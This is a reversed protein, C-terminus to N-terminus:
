PSLHNLKFTRRLLFDKLALPLLQKLYRMKRNGYGIGIEAPPKRSAIQAILLAAFQGATTPSASSIKARGEVADALSRYRSQASFTDRLQEKANDGFASAVAGPYVTMVHIGFPLLEMRLVESLTHLASKSACYAGSFPTALVGAASGINVVVPRRSKLLLPLCHQCLALPAFTNTEFQARVQALPMEVLPGMAGYGANNILCDLYGSHRTITAVVDALQEADNVDLAVPLLNRSRCDQLSQPDRAGAFVTHGQAALQLALERGIGSSCGSVLIVKAM